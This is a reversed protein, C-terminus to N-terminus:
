EIDATRRAGEAMLERIESVMSSTNKFNPVPTDFLVAVIYLFTKNIEIM